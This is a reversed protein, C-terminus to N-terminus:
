KLKFLNQESNLECEVDYPLTLQPDTHGIDAGYLIPVDIYDELIQKFYEEDDPSYQYPRGVIVGKVRDLAGMLKLQAIDAEAESVPYPEGPDSEPTELFLIKDEHSPWYETGATRLISPLCGGILEGEAEGERLWQYGPNDKRERSKELDEKEMWDLLEETWENSATKEGQWDGKIADLFDETTYELPEPYEGLEPIAAPGYFTQLNAKENLAYHLATIDSYGCFFKPNEKIHEFDLHPLISNATLGGITALIGDVDDDTFAEMLHEAREEPTGANWGYSDRGRTSPYEKVNFGQKELFETAADLRHPFLSAASGSPSILAITDDEELKDPFNM